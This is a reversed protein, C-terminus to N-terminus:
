EDIKGEKDVFGGGTPVFGHVWGRQGLEKEVWLAELFHGEV